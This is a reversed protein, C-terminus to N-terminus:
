RAGLSILQIAPMRFFLPLKYHPNLASRTIRGGNIWNYYNKPSDYFHFRDTVIIGNVRGKHTIINDSYVLGNATAADDIWIIGASPRNGNNPAKRVAAITGNFTAQDLLAIRNEPAQAYIMAISPYNINSNGAIKIAHDSYFQGSINRADSLTIVKPSYIIVEDMEVGHGITIPYASLIKVQNHFSIAGVLELPATAILTGPGILEWAEGAPLDVGIAVAQLPSDKKSLYIRNSSDPILAQLNTAPSAESEEKLTKFLKAIYAENIEPRLDETGKIVNGFVVENGTYPRGRLSEKQVGSRGVHVDGEIRTDGTVVLSYHAPNLILASNFISTPSYALYDREVFEQHKRSGVSSIHVYGGWPTSEVVATDGKDFGIRKSMPLWHWDFNESQHADAIFQEIGNEAAYRARLLDGKFTLVRAHKVSFSLFLMLTATVIVAIILVTIMASGNDHTNRQMM